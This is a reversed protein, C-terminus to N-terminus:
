QNNKNGGLVKKALLGAGVIGAGIAAGKGMKSIKMNKATDYTINKVANGGAGTTNKIGKNLAGLSVNNALRQATAAGNKGLLEAGAKANGAAKHALLGAGVATAGAGVIGANTLTDDSYFKQRILIM